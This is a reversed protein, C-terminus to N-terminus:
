RDADLYQDVPAFDDRLVAAGDIFEDLEPGMVVRDGDGNAAVRAALAGPDIADLSGVLVVNAAIRRELVGPPAIVAVSPFVARLTAAEARAFRMGPGDIVNVIYVGGPRLVRDVTAVVERTTLHWPVSRGGFADGMVFDYADDPLDALAVRADGVQVALDPGTRLGLRDRALGIVREDLELVTSRTGPRTAALARPLTFGGGGIHLADLPRGPPHVTALAADTVRLYRFELHAPDALDVYSHRLDDLILVRGTPRAPDIEIRACYYVTEVDCPRGIAVTGVVLLAGTVALVSLAAADRRRLWVWLAAGLVVLMVGVGVILTTISAAAVLVFGAFFTGAIAGATSLASLSGVIAGTEQLRRLQLKMVAPTVASLLAASPFFGAFALLLIAGSGGGQLPEGLARVLPVTCLAAIGGTGVLPGILARADTRDALMGGCWAGIAIGALVTGIIGTYTQLTVGVYPALLRGALIELVLVSGSTLFVLAGAVVSPLGAPAHPARDGAANAPATVAHRARRDPRDVGAPEHRRRGVVRQEEDEPRSLSRIGSTGEV